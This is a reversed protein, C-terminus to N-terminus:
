RNAGCATLVTSPPLWDIPRPTPPALLTVRPGLPAWVRPDTPGFLAITPLGIWAALHTPGADNGVYLAAHTMLAHLDDLSRPTQAHYRSRWRDLTEDPWRELEAEGLIPIVDHGRSRLTDILTEFRDLPWCKDRGGSGPHILVVRGM